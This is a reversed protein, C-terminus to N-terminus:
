NTKYFAREAKPIRLAKSQHGPYQLLAHQEIGADLESRCTAFSTPTNVMRDKLFMGHAIIGAGGGFNALVCFYGFFNM